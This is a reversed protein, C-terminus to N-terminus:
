SATGGDCTLLAGGGDVCGRVNGRTGATPVGIAKVEAEVGLARIARRQHDLHSPAVLYFPRADACTYHSYFPDTLDM